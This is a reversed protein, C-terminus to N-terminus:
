SKGRGGWGGVWGVARVGWESGGLGGVGMHIAIQFLSSALLRRFVSIPFMCEGGGGLCLVVIGGGEGGEWGGVGVVGLGGDPVLSCVGVGGGGILCM